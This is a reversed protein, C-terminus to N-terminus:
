TKEHDEKKRQKRKRMALAALAARVQAASIRRRRAAASLGVALAALLVAALGMAVYGATNGNGSATGTAASGSAGTADSAGADDTAGAEAEATEVRTGRVLLRHSNVGYPTCTVLTVYDEGEVIRFDDTEYPLVVKIRDVRYTLTKDLTHLEFEDGIQLQDLDSFLTASPDGRHASVVCHTSAGGVPLSTNVMHGAGKALVAESTGHYIPLFVDICPIEIYSMVGDANENLLQDYTLNQLEFDSVFPDSKQVLELLRANYAEAEAWAQELEQRNLQAVDEQYTRIVEGHHAEEYWNSFLPYLLIGLGLLIAALSVAPGARRSGRGAASAKQQLSAESGAKRRM